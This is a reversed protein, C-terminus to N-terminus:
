SLKMGDVTQKISEDVMQMFEKILEPDHVTMYNHLNELITEATVELIGHPDLQKWEGTEALETETEKTVIHYGRMTLTGINKAM